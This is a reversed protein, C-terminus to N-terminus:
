SLLAEIRHPNRAGLYVGDIMGSRIRVLSPTARIGFALAYDPNEVIDVKILRDPYRAHVADISAAMSRCPACNESFFYVLANDRGQLLANAAAPLQDVRRGRMRKARWVTRVQFAGMALILLLVAIGIENIM